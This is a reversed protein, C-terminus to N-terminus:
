TEPRTTRRFRAVPASSGIGRARTVTSPVLGGEQEIRRWLPRVPAPKLSELKVAFLDGLCRGVRVPIELHVQGAPLDLRDRLPALPPDGEAIEAPRLQAVDHPVELGFMGVLRELDRAQASYSASDAVTGSDVVEFANRIGRNSLVVAKQTEGPNTGFPDEASGAAEEM